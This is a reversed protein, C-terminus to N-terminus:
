RVNTWVNKQQTRRELLFAKREARAEAMRKLDDISLQGSGLVSGKPHTVLPNIVVAFYSPPGGRDGEQYIKILMGMYCYEEIVRDRQSAPTTAPEVEKRTAIAIPPYALPDSRYFRPRGRRRQADGEVLQQSTPQARQKEAAKREADIRRAEGERQAVANVAEFLAVRPVVWSKGMKLGPLRGEHLLDRVRWETCELFEAIEAISIKEDIEM